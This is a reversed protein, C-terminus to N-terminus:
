PILTEAEGTAVGERSPSGRLLPPQSAPTRPRCQLTLTDKQFAFAREKSLHWMTTLAQFPLLTSNNILSM